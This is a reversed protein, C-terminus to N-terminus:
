PQDGKRDLVRVLHRVKVIMGHIEPTDPLEAVRGIKNLGLGILTARQDFKRRTASGTQQVRITKTSSM